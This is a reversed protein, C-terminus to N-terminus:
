KILGKEDLPLHKWPGGRKLAKFCLNRTLLVSTKDPVMRMLFTRHFTLSAMGRNWLEGGLYYVTDDGTIRLADAREPIHSIDKLQAVRVSNSRIPHLMGRADMMFFSVHLPPAENIIQAALAREVLAELNYVEGYVFHDGAFFNELLYCPDSAPHRKKTQKLLRILMDPRSPRFDAGLHGSRILHKAHVAIGSPELDFMTAVQRMSFSAEYSASFIAFALLTRFRAQNLSEVRHEGLVSSHLSDITKQM